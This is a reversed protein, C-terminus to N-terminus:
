DFPSLKVMRNDNYGDTLPSAMVRSTDPSVTSMKLVNKQHKLQETHKNSLM